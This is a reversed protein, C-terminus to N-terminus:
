CRGRRHARGGGVCIVCSPGAKNSAGVMSPLMGRRLLCRARHHHISLPKRRRHSALLTHRRILLGWDSGPRVQYSLLCGYSVTQHRLTAPRGRKTKNGRRGGLASPWCCAFYRRERESRSRDDRDGESRDHNRQLDHPLLRVPRYQEQAGGERGRGSVWQFPLSASLSVASPCLCRLVGMCVLKTAEWAVVKGYSGGVVGGLHVLILPLPHAQSCAAARSIVVNGSGTGKRKWPSRAPGRKHQRYDDMMTTEGHLTPPSSPSSTQVV